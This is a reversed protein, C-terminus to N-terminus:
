PPQSSPAQDYYIKPNGTPLHSANVPILSDVADQLYAIPVPSKNTYEQKNFPADKFTKNFDFRVKRGIIVDGVKLDSGIGGATGTTVVLARKVEQIIQKWLDRLPLKPGDTSVHLESKFCLITKDAINTRFFSGLRNEKVSPAGPWINNKYNGFFPDYSYWSTKAYGPTLLDALPQSEAVTWTVILYGAEPLPDSSNPSQSYPQPKPAL